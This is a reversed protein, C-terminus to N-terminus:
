MFGTVCTKELVMCQYHSERLHQRKYVDKSQPDWVVEGFAAVVLYMWWDHMLAKRPIRRLFLQRSKRNIVATCGTVINEVLANEFSPARSLTKSLGLHNLKEDVITVRSCYLLPIDQPISELVSVARSVKNPLWVDDQDCFAFYDAESSALMLLQFFSAIVGINNRDRICM